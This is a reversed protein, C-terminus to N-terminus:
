TPALQPQHPTSPTRTLPRHRGPRRLALGAGFAILLATDGSKAEGEAIMRDLALPISAASTNGQDAIDRAIRGHEPLKMRAPWRTSSACTPRTPCSCTSSTSRHHRGRGAGAPRDEGDRVVGLPVGPQGAHDPAADRRQRAGRPQRRRRALGRAAPHPRVARRRLGVRGPRHGPTAPDSSPQARATPSSSPPAATPSTSSTPSGSSASSWSTGPAAPRPGHRLGPRRRPLLRRVGRLHRLRRRPRHRARPRDRHRRGPDPAPPDRDRRRRLRDPQADIGAREIAIRSAEVSMM